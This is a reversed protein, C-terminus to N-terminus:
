RPTVEAGRFSLGRERDGQDARRAPGPGSFQAM